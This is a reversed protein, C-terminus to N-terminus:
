YYIHLTYHMGSLKYRFYLRENRKRYTHIIIITLSVDEREVCKLRKKAADNANVSFTRTYLKGEM